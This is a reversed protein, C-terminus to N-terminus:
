LISPLLLFGRRITLYLPRELVANPCIFLQADGKTLGGILTEFEGVDQVERNVVVAIKETSDILKREV